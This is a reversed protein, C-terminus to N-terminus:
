HRARRWRRRVLAVLDWVALCLSMIMALLLFPLITWQADSAWNHECPGDLFDECHAAFPELGIIAVLTFALAGYAVIRLSGLKPRL